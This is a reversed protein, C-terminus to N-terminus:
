SGNLSAVMREAKKERYDVFAYWAGGMLTLLIGLANMGTITLNFITM